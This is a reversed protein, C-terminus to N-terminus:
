YSKVMWKFLKKYSMKAGRTLIGIRYVRGAVWATGLIGLILLVMSLIIQWTPIDFPLRAMMVVPSTFPIMSFITAVTGNPSEVAPLGVGISILIPLIVPFTFQQADTESDGASGIMAFLSAYILFGGLFYFIFCGIILPLNISSLADTFAKIQFVMSDDVPASNMQSQSEIATNMMETQGIVATTIGFLILTLILWMFLQTLGVAAIGIIKGMMLQFPKVSSVIIEVIKGSKEEVVGRMVQSGYVLIFIFILYASVGGAITGVLASTKRETGDESLNITTIDINAKIENLVEESIGKDQRKRKEIEDEMLSEITTLTGIGPNGKTRLVVDSPDLGSYKPIYLLGYSESELYTSKAKEADTNDSLFEFSLKGTSVLAEKFNGSEDLVIINKNEDGGKVSLFIILAYVGVVLLPTLFTMIIFTKNTVRTLYERKIVLFIKNM